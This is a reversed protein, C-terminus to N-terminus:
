DIRLLGIGNNPAATLTIDLLCPICGSTELYSHQPSQYAQKTAEASTLDHPFGAKNSFLCSREAHISPSHSQTYKRIYAYRFRSRYFRAYVVLICFHIIRRTRVYTVAHQYVALIFSRTIFPHHIYTSSFFSLLHIIYYICLAFRFVLMGGRGTRGCRRRACVIGM